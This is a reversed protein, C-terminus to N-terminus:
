TRSIDKTHTQTDAAHQHLDCIHCQVNGHTDIYIHTQTNCWSGLSQPHLRYIFYTLEGLKQDGSCPQLM